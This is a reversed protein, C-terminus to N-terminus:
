NINDRIGQFFDISKVVFVPVLYKVYNKPCEVCHVFGCYAM